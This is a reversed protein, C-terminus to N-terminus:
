MQDGEPISSKPYLFISIASLPRVHVAEFMWDCACVCVCMEILLLLLKKDKLSENRQRLLWKRRDTLEKEDDDRTIKNLGTESWWEDTQSRKLEKSYKRQWIGLKTGKHLKRRSMFQRLLVGASISQWLASKHKLSGLQLCRPHQVHSPIRKRERRVSSSKNSFQANM